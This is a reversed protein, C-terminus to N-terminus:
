QVLVNLLYMYNLNFHFKFHLQLQTRSNLDTQHHCHKHIELSIPFNEILGVRHNQGENVQDIENM